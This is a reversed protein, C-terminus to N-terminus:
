DNIKLDASCIGRLYLNSFSIAGKSALHRLVLTNLGTQINGLATRKPFGAAQLKRLTELAAAQKTNLTKDMDSHDKLSILFDLGLNINTAEV